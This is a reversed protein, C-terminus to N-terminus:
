RCAIHNSVISVNSCLDEIVTNEDLSNFSLFDMMRSPTTEFKDKREKRYRTEPTYKEKKHALVNYFVLLHVFDSECM